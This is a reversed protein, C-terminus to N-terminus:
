LPLLAQAARIDVKLLISALRRLAALDVPGLETWPLATELMFAKWDPM